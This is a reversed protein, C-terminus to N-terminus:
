IIRKLRDIPWGAVVQDKEAASLQGKMLALTYDGLAYARAEALAANIDQQLDQPLRQHYWATATYTPLFM